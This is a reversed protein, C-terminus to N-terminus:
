GNSELRDVSQVSPQGAHESVHRSDNISALIVVVAMSGTLGWFSGSIMIAGLYTVVARPALRDRPALEVFSGCIAWSLLFIGFLILGPIGVQLAMYLYGNDAAIGGLPFDALPGAPAYRAAVPGSAGLGYGLPQEGILRLAVPLTTDQRVSFSYDTSLGFLTAFRSLALDVRDPAVVALVSISVLAAGVVVGFRRASAGRRGRFTASGMSFIVVAMAAFAGVLASRQLVVLTVVASLIGLTWVLAGTRRFGRSVVVACAWVFGSGALMSLEQGTAQLGLLRTQSEVQYSAGAEVLAQMEVANLGVVAQVLAVMMNSLLVVLVLTRLRRAVIADFLKAQLIMAIVLGWVLARLGFLGQQGLVSISPVAIVM